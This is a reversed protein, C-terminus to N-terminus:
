RIRSWDLCVKGLDRMFPFAIKEYNYEGSGAIDSHNTYLKATLIIQNGDHDEIVASEITFGLALGVINTIVIKDQHNGPKHGYVFFNYYHQHLNSNQKWVESLEHPSKQMSEIIWKRQEETLNFDITSLDPFCLAKLM